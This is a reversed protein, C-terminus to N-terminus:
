PRTGAVVREAEEWLACRMDNTTHQEQEMLKRLEALTAQAEAHRRLQASTMACFTLAVPDGSERAKIENLKVLAGAYDGVRYSAIARLSAVSDERGALENEWDSDTLAGQGAREVLEDARALFELAYEYEERTRDPEILIQRAKSCLWPFGELCARALDVAQQRVDDPLPLSRIEQVLAGLPIRAELLQDIAERARDLLPIDVRVFEGEPIGRERMTQGDADVFDDLRNGARDFHATFMRAASRREYGQKRPDYCRLEVRCLADGRRPSLIANPQVCWCDAGEAETPPVFAIMWEVAARRLEEDGKLPFLVGGAGVEDPRIALVVLPYVMEKGFPSPQDFFPKVAPVLNPLLNETAVAVLVEHEGSWYLDTIGGANWIEGRQALDLDLIQLVTPYMRGHRIPLVIEPGPHDPLVDGIVQTNLDGAPAWGQLSRSVQYPVDITEPRSWRKAVRSEDDLFLYEMKKEEDNWLRVFVRGGHEPMADAPVLSFDQFQVYGATFLRGRIYGSLAALAKNRAELETNATDLEENQAAIRVAFLITALAALAIVVAVAAVMKTPNRQVLKTLQYVVSPPRAEIPENNLYRRIDRELEGASQYRRVREKQLAKLTITEVDGRLTRNVTSPRPPAQERVLRAVEYVAAQSVDYPLQECLLEYLVVGLAYVDSRIDLDNPDAACQEPSMYQVTGILQGVDTQQTAAAMDSDTSRAVGFDIIKPEGEADVLINGPKLDRHIIGKQHGHQVAGCAKAFLAMRQKTSLKKEQAYDTIPRANPIYEMAFYPVGGSGDDYWSAEYVQAINPHRLRALIESESEFRRLAARSTVGQRMLKLAVRRRPHEQVALFVDAMGGSGVFSKITYHGIREPISHPHRLEQRVQGVADPLLDETRAEDDLHDDERNSM